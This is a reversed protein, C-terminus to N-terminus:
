LRLREVAMLKSSLNQTIIIPFNNIYSFGMPQNVVSLNRIKNNIIKENFKKAIKQTIM